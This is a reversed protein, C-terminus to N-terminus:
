LKACAELGADQALSKRRDSAENAEALLRQVEGSDAKEAAARLAEARAVTKDAADRFTAFADAKDGPPDLGDIRKVTDRLVPLAKEIYPGLDKVHTPQGLKAIAASYDTCIANGAKEYVAPDGGDDGGCGALAVLGVLLARRM